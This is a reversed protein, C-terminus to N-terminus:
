DFPVLPNYDMKMYVNGQMLERLMQELRREVTAPRKARTIWSLYDNQQYAPRSRFALMLKQDTLAVEVFSPMEVRPRKLRSFDRDTM